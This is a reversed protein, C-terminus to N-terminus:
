ERRESLLDERFGGVELFSKREALLNCLILEKESALRRIGVTYLTGAFGDFGALLGHRGSLGAGLLTRGIPCMLAGVMSAGTEAQAELLQTLGGPQLRSDSDL